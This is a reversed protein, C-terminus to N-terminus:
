ASRFVEVSDPRERAALVVALIGLGLTNAVFGLMGIVSVTAAFAQVDSGPGVAAFGLQPIAWAAAQLVLVWLPAWRWPSAVVGARAIQVAAILAAAIPALLSLYGYVTWAAADEPSRAGLLGAIVSNALPWLAVVILASLGLPRRAVVSGERTFGIALLM